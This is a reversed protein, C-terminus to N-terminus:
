FHNELWELFGHPQHGAVANDSDVYEDGVAHADSDGVLHKIAETGTNIQKLDEATEINSPSVSSVIEKGDRLETIILKM